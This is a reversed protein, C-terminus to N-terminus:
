YEQWEDFEVAFQRYFEPVYKLHEEGEKGHSGELVGLGM